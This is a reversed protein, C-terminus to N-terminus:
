FDEYEKYLILTVSRHLSEYLHLCSFKLTTIMSFINWRYAKKYWIQMNSNIKDINNVYVSHWKLIIIVISNWFPYKKFPVKSIRINTKNIVVHWNYWFCSFNIISNLCFYCWFLLILCLFFSYCFFTDFTTIISHL